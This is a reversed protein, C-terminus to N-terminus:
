ALGHSNRYLRNLMSIGLKTIMLLSAGTILGPLTIQCFTGFTSCVCVRYSLLEARLYFGLLFAYMYAGFVHEIINVAVGDTIALLQFYGLHKDITCHILM